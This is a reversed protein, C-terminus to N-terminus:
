VFEYAIERDKEIINEGDFRGDRLPSSIPFSLRTVAIRRLNPILKGSKQRRRIRTAAVHRGHM